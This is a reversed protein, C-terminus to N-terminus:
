AVEPPVLLALKARYRLLFVAQKLSAKDQDSTMPGAIGLFRPAYPDRVAM